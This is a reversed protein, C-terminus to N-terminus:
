PLPEVEDAHFFFRHGFAGLDKGPDDDVTVALLLRGELDQEVSAVTAAKGALAVDFVDGGRRPKLRVRDGSRLPTAQPRLDRVAGHLRAWDQPSLAETRAILERARPDAPAAARPAV